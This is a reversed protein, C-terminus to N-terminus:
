ISLIKKINERPNGQYIPRGIVAFCNRDSQKIFEAYTVVRKQDDIKNNIRIGPCFIKM